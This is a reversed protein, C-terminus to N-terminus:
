RVEQCPADASHGPWLRETGARPGGYYAVTDRTGAGYHARVPRCGGFACTDALQPKTIDAGCGSACRSRLALLRRAYM